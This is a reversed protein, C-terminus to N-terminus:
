KQRTKKPTKPAKTEASETPHIDRFDGYEIEFPTTQIFIGTLCEFHKNEKYSRTTPDRFVQLTNPTRWNIWLKQKGGTTERSASYINGIDNMVGDGFRVISLNETETRVADAKRHFLVATYAGGPGPVEGEITNQDDKSCGSVGFTLWAM